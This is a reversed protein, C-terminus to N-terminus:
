ESRTAINRLTVEEALWKGRLFHHSPQRLIPALHDRLLATRTVLAFGSYTYGIRCQDPLIKRSLFDLRANTRAPYLLEPNARTQSPRLSTHCFPNEIGRVVLCSCPM